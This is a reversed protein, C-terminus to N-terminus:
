RICDLNQTEVEMGLHLSVIRAEYIFNIVIFYGTHTNLGSSPFSDLVSLASLYKSTDRSRM